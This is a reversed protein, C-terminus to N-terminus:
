LHSALWRDVTAYADERAQSRSLFVDHKAGHIPVSTVEDGLCGVWRSIQHVDLVADTREARESYENSLHSASSRLVLSPAGIDLGRHLEAHGARIAALWGLTVPFGEVPKWATDFDWEGGVSVHLSRGYVGGGLKPLRALPRIKSVGAVAWTGLSRGLWPGQLDFWPSNLIVGAMGVGRSGGVLLNKRDMWLPVILGGTSHGSMLVPADTEARVIALAEDLEADYHRLDSVHHPTHGEHLSRGCKRLDLAYFAVDHEVYFDAMDSQFFYDTFGHVYIIAAKPPSTRTYARRVLTATIHGEGDPDDGLDIVRHDYEHGLVDPAWDNM